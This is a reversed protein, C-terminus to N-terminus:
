GQLRQGRRGAATTGFGGLDQCGASQSAAGPRILPDWCWVAWCDREEGSKLLLAQRILPDGHMGALWYREVEGPSAASSEFSEDSDIVM